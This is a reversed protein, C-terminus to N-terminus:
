PWWRNLTRAVISGDTPRKAIIVPPAAGQAVAAAVSGVLRDRFRGERTAGLVVLDHENAATVIADAVGDAQRVDGDVSVGTIRERAAEVHARSESRETESAGRPVYSVVRVTAANARAVAGALETAAEVHRGGDTPLLVAELGDATTGIREVFVDCPASRLVRDVNTGLVVDAPRPRDQWGILLADADADQVASLLADSVNSGVLLSRGVPVPADGAADVAADLVAHQDDAFERKIQEGSFILFPSTVHKHVVSVVRIQGDRDRALDVATRMLQDVHAPNAVAVLLTYRRGFASEDEVVRQVNGM